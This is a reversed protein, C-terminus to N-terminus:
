AFVSIIWASYNIYVEKGSPWVNITYPDECKGEM